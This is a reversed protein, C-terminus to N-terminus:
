TNGKAGEIKEKMRRKITSFLRVLQTAEDNLSLNEDRRVVEIEMFYELWFLTEDAEEVV